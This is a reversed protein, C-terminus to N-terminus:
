PLSPAAAIASPSNPTLTSNPWPAITPPSIFSHTTASAKPAAPSHHPNRRRRSRRRHRPRQRQARSRPRLPLSRQPRHPSSRHPPSILYLNNREDTTLPDGTEPHFSHDDAYRASRVGPAGHLADVELGSDDALVIENPLHQSYYIAKIRANAEFTPEDEAPAPIVKLGPLPLLTVADHTAAAFDRLKGSNSTAVYLVM